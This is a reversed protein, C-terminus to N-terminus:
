QGGGHGVLTVHSFRMEPPAVVGQAFDQHADLYPMVHSAEVMVANPKAAMQLAAPREPLTMWVTWTIAAVAAAAATWAVVRGHTRGQRQRRMPALVTPEAAMAQRLRMQLGPQVIVEGRLADGILCYVSWQRVLFQDENLRKFALDAKAEDLEGDLLASLSETDATTSDMQAHSYM